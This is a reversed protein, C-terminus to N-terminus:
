ALRRTVNGTRVSATAIISGARWVGKTAGTPLVGNGDDLKRAALRAAIASGAIATRAFGFHQRADRAAVFGRGSFWKQM